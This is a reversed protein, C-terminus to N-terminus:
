RSITEAAGTNGITLVTRTCDDGPLNRVTGVRVIKRILKNFGENHGNKRFSKKFYRPAYHKNLRLFLTM